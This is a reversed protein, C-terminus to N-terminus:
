MSLSYGITTKGNFITMTKETILQPNTRIGVNRAVIQIYDGVSANIDDTTLKISSANTNRAMNLLRQQNTSNPYTNPDNKNWISLGTYKLDSITSEYTATKASGDTAIYHISAEDLFMNVGFADSLVVDEDKVYNYTITSPNKFQVLYSGGSGVTIYPTLGSFESVTNIAELFSAGTPIIIRLIWSSYDSSWETFKSDAITDVQTASLNIGATNNNYFKSAAQFYGLITFFRNTPNATNWQDQWRIIIEHLGDTQRREACIKSLIGLYTDGTYTVQRNKLDIDRAVIRGGFETGGVSIFDGLDLFEPEIPVTFQFTNNSNLGSSSQFSTPEIIARGNYTRKQLSSNQRILYNVM